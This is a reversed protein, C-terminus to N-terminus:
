RAPRDTMDAGFKQNPTAGLEIELKGGSTIMDHTIYSKTYSQGNYKISQIYINEKSNNHAVVTFNKGNPQKVTVEDLAPSGFVYVGNAPHVPYFGMASMIYWASMQGCDENGSLGDPQDHYLTDLVQRVRQAAKWQQGVFAYMYITHHSPENGHAYQGILGSIDSSAGEGLDSSMNFLTDLK